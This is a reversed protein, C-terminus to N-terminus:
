DPIACLTENIPNWHPFTLARYGHRPSELGSWEVPLPRLPKGDRAVPFGEWTACSEVRWPEDWLRLKGHGIRRLAGLYHIGSLLERIRAADGMCWWTVRDGVLLKTSYPIRLSKNEAGSIDVRRIKASGLRAMEQLPARKHRFRTDHAMVEFQGESCLHFRGAPERQIPIEIRLMTGGKLPALGGAQDFVARALIADLAPPYQFVVAEDLNATVMLPEARAVDCLDGLQERKLPDM